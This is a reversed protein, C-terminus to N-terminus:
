AGERRQHDEFMKMAGFSAAGALAEHGFSSKNEEFNDNNYVQDYSNEGHDTSDDAIGISSTSMTSTGWFGMTLTHTHTHTHNLKTFFHHTTM